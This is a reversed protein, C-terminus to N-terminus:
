TKLKPNYQCAHGNKFDEQLETDLQLALLNRMDDPLDAADTLAAALDPGSRLVAILLLRDAATLGNAADLAKKYPNPLYDALSNPEDVLRNYVDTRTGDPGVRYVHFRLEGVLTYPLAVGAIAVVLLILLLKTKM